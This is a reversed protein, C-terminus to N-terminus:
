DALKYLDKLNRGAQAYDLGYGVVFEPAIEFAIYDIKFNREVVDKHLFTAIKISRPNLKSIHELLAQMSLGTEIIDEVIIVDRDTLDRSVDKLINIKGSSRKNNGYSSIQMFDMECAIDVARVLDALFMFAGNLIGVFVPNKGEYDKSIQKGIEQVRPAIQDHPISISFTKDHIKINNNMTSEM